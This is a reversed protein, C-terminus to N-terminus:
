GRFYAMAAIVMFTACFISVITIFLTQGNAMKKYQEAKAQAKAERYIQLLLKKTDEDSRKVVSCVPYLSQEWLIQTWEKNENFYQNAGDLLFAMNNKPNDACSRIVDLPMEMIRRDITHIECWQSREKVKGFSIQPLPISTPM